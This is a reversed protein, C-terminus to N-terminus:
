LPIPLTCLRDHSKIREVLESSSCIEKIFGAKEEATMDRTRPIARADPITIKFEGDLNVYFRSNDREMAVGRPTTAGLPYIYPKAAGHLEVRVKPRNAKLGEKHHWRLTTRKFEIM